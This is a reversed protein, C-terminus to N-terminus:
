LFDLSCLCLPFPLSRFRTGRSYLVQLRTRRDLDCKSLIRQAAFRWGGTPNLLPLSFEAAQKLQELIDAPIRIITLLNLHQGLKHPFIIVLHTQIFKEFSEQLMFDVKRGCRTAFCFMSTSDSTQRHLTECGIRRLSFDWDFIKSTSDSDFRFHVNKSSHTFISKKIVKFSVYFHVDPSVLCVLATLDSSHWM